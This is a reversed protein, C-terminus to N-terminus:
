RHGLVTHSIRHVTSCVSRGLSRPEHTHTTESIPFLFVSNHVAALPDALINTPRKRKLLFSNYFKPAGQPGRQIFHTQGVGRKTGAPEWNDGAPRFIIQMFSFRKLVSCHPLMCSRFTLSGM